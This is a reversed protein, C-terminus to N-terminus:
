LVYDSDMLCKKNSIGYLINNDRSVAAYGYRTRYEINELTYFYRMIYYQFFFVFDDLIKLTHIYLPFMRSHDTKYNVTLCKKNYFYYLKM